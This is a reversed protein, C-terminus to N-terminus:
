LRRHRPGGGTRYAYIWDRTVETEYDPDICSNTTYIGPALLDGAGAHYLDIAAGLSEVASDAHLRVCDADTLQGAAFRHTSLGSFHTIDTRKTM